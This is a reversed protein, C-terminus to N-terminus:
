EEREEKAVDALPRSPGPGQDVPHDGPCSGSASARHTKRLSRAVM